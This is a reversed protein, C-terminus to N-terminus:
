SNALVVLARRGPFKYTALAMGVPAGIAFAVASATLSIRLSLLVIAVLEDDFRGILALATSFARGLDSMPAAKAHSKLEMCERPARTVPQVGCMSPTVERQM